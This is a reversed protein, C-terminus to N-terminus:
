FYDSRWYFVEDAHTPLALDAIPRLMFIDRAPVRDILGLQPSILAAKDEVVPRPSFRPSFTMGGGRWM